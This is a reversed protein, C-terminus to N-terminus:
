SVSAAATKKRARSLISGVILKLEKGEALLADLKAVPIWAREGSFELWLRFERLEKNVIGMSKLFDARSVGEDAEYLNASVSTGCAILQDVVRRSKRASELAEAVDVM